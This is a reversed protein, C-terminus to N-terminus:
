LDPSSPGRRKPSDFGIACERPPKRTSPLYTLPGQRTNRHQPFHLSRKGRRTQACVSRALGSYRDNRSPNALNSDTVAPLVYAVAMLIPFGTLKPFATFASRAVLPITSCAVSASNTAAQASTSRNPNKVSGCVPTASAAVTFSTLAFTIGLADRTTTM